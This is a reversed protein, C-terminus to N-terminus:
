LDRRNNSSKTKDASLIDGIPDQYGLRNRPHTLQYPSKGAWYPHEGAKRAAELLKEDSYVRRLKRLAKQMTTADGYHQGTSENWTQLFQHAFTTM